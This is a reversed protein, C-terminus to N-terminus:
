NGQLIVNRGSVIGDKGETYYNKFSFPQNITTNYGSGLVANGSTQIIGQGGASCNTVAVGVLSYRTALTTPFSPSSPTVGATVTLPYDYSLVTYIAYTPVGGGNIFAIACRNGPLGVVCPTAQSNVSLGLDQTLTIGVSNQGAGQFFKLRTTIGVSPERTGFGIFQGNGTCALAQAAPSDSLTTGGGLALTYFGGNYASTCVSLGAENAGGMMLGFNINSPMSSIRWGYGSYVNGASLDGQVVSYNSPSAGRRFSAYRVASNGSQFAVFIEGSINGSISYGRQDSVVNYFSGATYVASGADDYVRLSSASTGGGTDELFVIAWYSNSGVSCIAAVGQPNGGSPNISKAVTTITGTTLLTYSSSYINYKITNNDTYYTVVIKGNALVTMSAAYIRDLCSGVTLTTQLVGLYNYAAIKITATGGGGNGIQYLVAFGGDALNKADMSFVSVNEIVTQGVIATFSASPFTAAGSSTAVFAAGTPTSNARSYNGVSFSNSSLGVNLPSTQAGILAFSNVDIAAYAIGNTNPYTIATAAGIGQPTSSRYIRLASGFTILSTGSVSNSSQWPTIWILNSNLRNASTDFIDCILCSTGYGAGRPDAANRPAVIAIYNTGEIREAKFAGQPIINTAWNFSPFTLQATTTGTITHWVTGQISGGFLTPIIVHVVDADMVAASLGQANFSATSLTGSGLVTNTASRLSYDVGSGSCSFLQFSDDSRVTVDGWNAASNLSTSGWTGTYLSTGTSSIVAYSPQASANAYAIVFSGDSRGAMMFQRYSTSFTGISVESSTAVGSSNYVRAYITNTAGTWAVAFGGNGLETVTASFGSSGSNTPNVQTQAVVTNGSSDVIKFYVPSTTDLPNTPAFYAIVINGNSLKAVSEGYNAGGFVVDFSLGAMNQTTSPRYALAPYTEAQFTSTASLNDAVRGYGSPTLYVYDGASFGIPSTVTRFQNTSSSTVSRSM